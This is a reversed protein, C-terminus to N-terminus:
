GACAGAPASGNRIIDAYVKASLKPVRKQTDYDVYIMGFRSAYGCLWELSDHSPWM